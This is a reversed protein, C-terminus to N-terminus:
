AEESPNIKIMSLSEESISDNSYGNKADGETWEKKRAKLSGLTEGNRWKTRHLKM